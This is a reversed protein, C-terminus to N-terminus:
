TALNMDVWVGEWLRLKDRANGGPWAVEVLDFSNILTIPKNPKDSLYTERLGKIKCSAVTTVIKEAQRLWGIERLFEESINTWANGFHDIYIIRGHVEEGVLEPQPQDVPVLSELRPGFSKMPVGQALHAAAPAFIDRGHFTPSIEDAIYSPNEIRVAEWSGMSEVTPTICGNDPAVFYQDGARAMVANRDTGVGPDVVTVFISGPPFYKRSGKLFMAAVLVNLPPVHHCLNIVHTRPSIGAIVGKMQGVFPDSLGFDTLLVIPGKAENENMSM